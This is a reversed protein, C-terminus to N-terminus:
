KKNLFKNKRQSDIKKLERQNFWGKQIIMLLRANTKKTNNKITNFLKLIKEEYKTYINKIELLKNEDKVLKYHINVNKVNILM